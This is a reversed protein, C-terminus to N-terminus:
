PFPVSSTPSKRPEAINRAGDRTDPNKDGDPRLPNQALAVCEDKGAFPTRLPTALRLASVVPWDRKARQSVSPLAVCAAICLASRRLLFLKRM